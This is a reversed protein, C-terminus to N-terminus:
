GATTTTTTPAPNQDVGKFVAVVGIATFDAFLKTAGHERELIMDTIKQQTKVKEVKNVDTDPYTAFTFDNVNIMKGALPTRDDAVDIKALGLHENTTTKLILDYLM